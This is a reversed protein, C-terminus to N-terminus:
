RKLGYVVVSPMEDEDYQIGLLYDKGVEILRFHAPLTLTGLWLGDPQFVDFLSPADTGWFTWQRSLIEGGTAMLLQGHGPLSDPTIVAALMQERRVDGQTLLREQPTRLLSDASHREADTPVRRGGDRRIIQLVRGTSSRVEIEWHPNTASAIRMPSDGATLSSRAHFPHIVFNTEGGGLDIGQSEIGIDVGLRYTTDLSQPILFQRRLQRLVGPGPSTWGPSVMRNPRNTESLPITPDQQCSVHSLDPLLYTACEGWRGLARLREWDTKQERIFLGQSYWALKQMTGVVLTDGPLVVMDRAYRFEGPGEGQTAFARVFAGTSDFWRGGLDTILALEGNSLRASTAIYRADGLATEPGITLLPEASVRWGEGEGWVPRHNHVITIGGSDTITAQDTDTPPQTGNCGSCLLATGFAIQQRM